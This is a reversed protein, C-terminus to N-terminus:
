EGGFFRCIVAAIAEKEAATGRVYGDFLCIVVQLGLVFVAFTLGVLVSGIVRGLFDKSFYIKFFEKLRNM